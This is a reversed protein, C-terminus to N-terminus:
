LGAEGRRKEELYAKPSIGFSKKFCKSFYGPEGFGVSEAVQAVTMDRSDMLRKAEQMRIRSILDSVTCGLQRSIIRRIYSSDLYVGAAVDEVTLEADTFHKRIYDEVQGSIERGRRSYTNRFADMAKEFSKRLFLIGEDLSPQNYLNAYPLFGKGYIEEINGNMELIYSLCISMMGSMAMCAYDQALHREKITAEMEALISCVEKKDQKRLAHLLRDNLEVRYFDAAAQRGWVRDYSIVRGTGLLFKEELAKRAHQYALPIQRGNGTISGMGVTVTFSFFEELLALLKEWAPIVEEELSLGQDYNFISVIRDEYESFILHARGKGELVEEAVNKICFKHLSIDEQNKRMQYINDIEMVSVLFSDGPFVVGLDELKGFLEERSGKEEPRILRKLLEEKVIAYDIKKQEAEEQRRLLKMRLKVVVETLEEPSFPKLIYEDAGLKVARRAYEFESYGTVFVILLDPDEKKLLEALTLGDMGPMNIDLLAVHVNGDRVAALVEEGNRCSACIRMGLSEWDLVWNMYNRFHIEDDAVLVNLM